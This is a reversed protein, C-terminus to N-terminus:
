KTFNILILASSIILLIPQLVISITQLRESTNYIPLPEIYLIDNNQLILKPSALSRINRLNVYIIEPDSRDGRIIKLTKPNARASIGGAMGLIDILSTNEKELLFNGQSGFEGILTVKLNLVTLEIIPDKLLNKKYLSQIKDSAEKRTLGIVSVANIVPLIVTGDDEVRFINVVDAKTGSSASLFSDDQINRISLADNAKIRYKENAAGKDNIVHITKITDINIPLESKFLANHYQKSCSSASICYICLFVLLIKNSNIKMLSLYEHWQYPSTVINKLKM